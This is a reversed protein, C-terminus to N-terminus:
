SARAFEGFNDNAARAFAASAEEPTQFVGLNRQKGKFGIYAQYRGSPLLRVGKLCLSTQAGRNALNQSRTAERLNEWKNNSRDCDKHDVEHKPFSGTMYLFALRHARYLKGDIGIVAYGRGDSSGAVDGPKIKVRGRGRPVIWKFVGTAPDYHLLDKLYEQTIETM